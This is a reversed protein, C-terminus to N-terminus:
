KVKVEIQKPKAAEAKPIEIQLIGNNFGAEIKETNIESNIRFSREFKGYRRENLHYDTKESTRSDKKEGSVTLVGDQFAIQLDEKKMGPLEMRLVYENESEEIDVQPYWSGQSLNFLGRSNFLEDFLNDSWNFLVRNPNWKVLTM